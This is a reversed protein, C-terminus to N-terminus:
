DRTRRRNRRRSSRSYTPTPLTAGAADSADDCLDITAPPPPQAEHLARMARAEALYYAFDVNLRAREHARRQNLEAVPLTTIVFLAVIASPTHMPSMYHESITTSLASQLIASLLWWFISEMMGLSLQMHDLLSYHADSVAADGAATDLLAPHAHRRLVLIRRQESALWSKAHWVLFVIVTLLVAWTFAHTGQLVIAGLAQGITFGILHAVSGISANSAKLLEGYSRQAERWQAGVTARYGRGTRWLEGSPDVLALM